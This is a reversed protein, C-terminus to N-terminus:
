YAEVAQLVMPFVLTKYGNYGIINHLFHGVFLVVLM